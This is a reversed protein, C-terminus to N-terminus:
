IVFIILPLIFSIALFGVALLNNFFSVESQINFGSYFLENVITRM